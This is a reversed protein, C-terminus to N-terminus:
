AAQTEPTAPVDTGAALSPDLKPKSANYLAQEHATMGGDVAQRMAKFGAKSAPSGAKVARKPSTTGARKRTSPRSTPGTTLIALIDDANDMIFSAMDEVPAEKCCDSRRALAMLEHAKAEEVTAHVVGASDKFGTTKTIPM